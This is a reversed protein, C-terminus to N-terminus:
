DLNLNNLYTKKSQRIVNTAKLFEDMNGVGDKSFWGEIEGAIFAEEAWKKKLELLESDTLINVNELKELVVAEIVGINRVGEENNNPNCKPAPVYVTKHKM